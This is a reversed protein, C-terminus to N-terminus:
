PLVLDAGQPYANLEATNVPTVNQWNINLYSFVEPSIVWRKQGNELKFVRYDGEAMIYENVPYSNLEAQSIEVIEEWKNGYSNFVDSSIIHRKLGGNTIYYVKPDGALKVHKVRTYSDREETTVIEIEDWSFGGANFAEINPIHRRFEGIVHYVKYDGEARILKPICEGDPYNNLYSDSVNIINDWSYGRRIFARASTIWRKKGQDIYYVRPGSGKLLTGDGYIISSDGTKIKIGAGVSYNPIEDYSYIKYYYETQPSLNADTYTTALDEFILIGDNRDLPYGNTKRVIRVGEFDSTSPNQWNLTVSVTSASGTLNSVNAPPTTDASGGGGGGGTPPIGGPNTLSYSGNTVSTLLDAGGYVINSDHTNNLEHDFTVNATGAALVNFIVTAFLKSENGSNYVGDTDTLQVFEIQGATTDVNNVQTRPYLDGSSIQVGAASSQVDVVSLLAPNYNLHRVAAGHTDENETNILIQVTFSNGVEYSGSSPSVSFSAAQTSQGGALFFIAGLTLVFFCYRKINM